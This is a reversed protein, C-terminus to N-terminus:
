KKAIGVYDYECYWFSKEHIKDELKKLLEKMEHYNNQHEKDDPREDLNRKFNHIRYSFREDFLLQRSDADFSTTDKMYSKMKIDRLGANLLFRYIKRGNYRDSGGKVSGSLYIIRDVIGDDGDAIHSGDDITRIIIVGNESMHKRITRLMKPVDEDKLHHMVLAVFVLDFGAIGKEHKIAELGESLENVLDIEHYSFKSNGFEENAYDICGAEKDIGVVNAFRDDNFHLQGVFGYACGADLVNLPKDAPFDALAFSIADNDVEYAGKAQIKLRQLESESASKYNNRSEISESQGPRSKLFNQHIDYISEGLRIFDYVMTGNYSGVAAIDEPLDNPFATKYFVPVININNELAIRIERVVWNEDANESPMFTNETVILVFDTSSKIENELALPFQGGRLQRDWFISYGLKLLEDYVGKVFTVDKRKYSIFIKDTTGSM